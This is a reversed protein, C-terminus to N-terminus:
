EVTLEAEDLIPTVHGPRDKKTLLKERESRSTKGDPPLLETVANVLQFNGLTKGKHLTIEADHVNILNVLVEDGHM